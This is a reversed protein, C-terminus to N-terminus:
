AAFLFSTPRRLVRVKDLLEPNSYVGRESPPVLQALREGCYQELVGEQLKGDVGLYSAIDEVATPYDVISSIIPSRRLGFARLYAERTVKETIPDYVHNEGTNGVFFLFPKKGQDEITRVLFSISNKQLAIMGNIEGPFGDPKQRGSEVSGEPLIIPIQSNEVLRMSAEYLERLNKPKGDKAGRVVFFPEAGLKALTPKVLKFYEVVEENQTKDISYAVFILSKQIQQNPPLVKNAISMINKAEEMAPFGGPHSKHTGLLIPWHKGDRMIEQVKDAYYVPHNIPNKLVVAEQRSAAFRRWINKRSKESGLQAQLQEAAAKARVLVEIAIAMNTIKDYEM